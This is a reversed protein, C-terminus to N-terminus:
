LAGSARLWALALAAALVAPVRSRWTRGRLTDVLRAHETELLRGATVSVLVFMAAALTGWAVTNLFTLTVASM